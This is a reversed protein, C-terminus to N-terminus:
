SGDSDGFVVMGGEAVTSHLMGGGVVNQGMDFAARGSGRARARAESEAYRRKNARVVEVADVFYATPARTARERAVDFAFLLTGDDVLRKLDAGSLGDSAAALADLDVPRMVDPLAACREALIARRAAEDPLRMELWLEIRGSRVLAPPLSGVDMATMILCVEGVGESELGDLMTLLYRYLGTDGGEFIVDSDDVFIVAPAHQKAAEFVHHVRQFFEPTGAVVTGDILFFKGRLRHALARGITTKGTGPPGALLVGRKPRLGFEAALDAREFPLVVNAELAEIVDDVGKLTALEVAEVEALDVNTAMQHARLHDLFRDTDLADGAEVLAECADRLQRATLHRAFRYVRAFDVRAAAADGLYARAVHAYDSADFADLSVVRAGPRQVQIPAPNGALVLRTGTALARDVLATLPVRLFQQRPYFHGFLATHALLQVDDVLVPDRAALADGVLNYFAEELALPHRGDMAGILEAATLVRTRGGLQRQLARLMTTRGMGDSVRFFTPRDSALIADIARQQAPSPTAAPRVSGSM